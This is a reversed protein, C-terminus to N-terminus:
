KRLEFWIATLMVPVSLMTFNYGIQYNFLGVTAGLCLVVGGLIAIIISWQKNDM